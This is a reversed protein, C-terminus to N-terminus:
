YSGKCIWVKIGVIGYITKAEVNAYDINSRLTHLPVSGSRFWEKRAIEAGGLRGSCCIKIGAAGAKSTSFGSKKMVRRFSARREIQEAIGTAVLVASLEPNAVEQVSVDMNIGFKASLDKRLQEIGQGKKGIITGPRGSHVIIRVSDGTREIVVKSVDGRSLRDKLFKRIALDKVLEKGYSNRSFWRADWDNYIGLRFGIPHVKQGV